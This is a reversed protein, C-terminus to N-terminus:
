SFLYFNGLFVPLDPSRPQPLLKGFDPPTATNIEIPKPNARCPYIVAAHFIPLRTAVYGCALIVEKADHAVPLQLLM